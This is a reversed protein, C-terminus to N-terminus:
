MPFRWRKGGELGQIVIELLLYDLSRGAFSKLDATVAVPIYEGPSSLLFCASDPDVAAM